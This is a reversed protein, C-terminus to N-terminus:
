RSSLVDIKLTGMLRLLEAQKALGGITFRIHSADAPFQGNHCQQCLYRPRLLKVEGVATLLRRSRMERYRAKHGCPCPIECDASGPPQYQLLQTLASAGAQHMARLAMEVAEPDLHGTKRCDQFVVQLLRSIEKSVEQHITM